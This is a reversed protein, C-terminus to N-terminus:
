AALGGDDTEPEYILQMGDFGELVLAGDDTKGRLHMLECYGKASPPGIKLANIDYGREQLASELAGLAPGSMCRPHIFVQASM